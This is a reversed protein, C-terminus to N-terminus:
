KVGAQVRLWGPKQWEIQNMAAMDHVVGGDVPVCQGYNGSAGGRPTLPIRHRACAAAVRIVESEDKPTVVIDALKDKLQENLIPSYWFYDRSRRKLDTLDTTFDIGSIDGLLLGIPYRATEADRALVASQAM